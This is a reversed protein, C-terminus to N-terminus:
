PANDTLSLSMGVDSIAQFYVQETRLTQPWERIVEWTGRTERTELWVGQTTPQM